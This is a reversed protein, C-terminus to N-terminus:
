REVRRANRKLGTAIFRNPPSHPPLSRHYVLLPSVIKLSIINREWEPSLNKHLSIAAYSLLGISLYIRGRYLSLPLPSPQYTRYLEVYIGCGQDGRRTRPIYYFSGLFERYFLRITPAYQSEPPPALLALSVSGRHVRAVTLIPLSLRSVLPKHKLKNLRSYFRTKRSMPVGDGDLPRRENGETFLSRWKKGVENISGRSDM